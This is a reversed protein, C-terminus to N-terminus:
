APTPARARTQHGHLFSLCPRQRQDAYVAAYGPAFMLLMFAEFQLQDLDFDLAVAAWIAAINVGIGKRAGLAADLWFARELAPGARVGAAALVSLAADIREDRRSLPRGYGHLVQRAELMEALWRERQPLAEPIARQLRFAQAMARFGYEESNSAALAASISLAPDVRASGMYGAIRNCWIRADPYASCLWLQELVRARTADFWRGTACFLFYHVFSMGLCEHHLDRGHVIVQRGLHVIGASARLEPLGTVEDEASLASTDDTGPARPADSSGPGLGVGPDSLGIQQMLRPRDYSRAPPSVGEYRYTKAFFPFAALGRERAAAAEEMATAIRWSLFLREAVSAPTGADTFALAALGIMNLPGISPELSTRFDLWCGLRSPRRALAGATVLREAAELVARARADAVYGFGPALESPPEPERRFAAQWAAAELPLSALRRMCEGLARIGIVPSDYYAAATIAAAAVSAGAVCANRAAEIGEDFWIDRALERALADVLAKSTAASTM